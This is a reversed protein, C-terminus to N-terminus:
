KSGARPDGAGFTLRVGAYAATGATNFGFVEEYRQNFLNEIRGYVEVGQQLEYSLAASALLYDDLALRQVPFFFPAGFVEDYAVGNYVAALHLKGRGNDFGYNLDARAAHPPRRIERVGTNEVADLYTYALGLSLAPMLQFRGAIEVGKRQASGQLNVPYACFLDGPRCDIPRTPDLMSVFETRIKNRLDAAFYTVDLAARGGLFTFELGADWGFSEEPKLGPNSVFNSTSGFQEILTPAKVGTGASAHPRLGIEPLPVTLTTRWTTFDQFTDNDDRRVGATLFIRDLFEGRWEAAFATQNRAASVAGGFAPRSEFTERGREILGTIGHRAMAWPTTFRYTAQYAAKYADDTNAFPSPPGFGFGFDAIQVDDRTTLNRTASFIHTLDGGLADWRLNAGMLLVTSAFRSFSDSAIIFGDRSNLGTQDDRDGKKDVWRTTLDLRINNALMAGARASLSTLRSGDEEGLPGDPAINFGDTQRRQVTLAGWLRESGGSIRAAGDRTNFGGAEVRTMINAPGIGRRTIVNVVGGVANSGYLASQPGRIVEIREIDEVLLDSFDFTGDSGVNAEVGDILVLTHNSEAGRLRVQTLGGIGGTRSVSVGPLSRLAEAASRVQQRRLEEGTVVTVSSGLRDTPIGGVESGSVPGAVAEGEGMGASGPAGPQESQRPRSAPKAELTAGEVLIGPLVQPSQASVPGCPLSALFCFSVLACRGSGPQVRNINSSVRM